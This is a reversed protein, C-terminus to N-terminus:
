PLFCGRHKPSAPAARIQSIGPYYGTIRKRERDKMENRYDGAEKGSRGVGEYKIM